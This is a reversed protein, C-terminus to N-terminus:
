HGLGLTGSFQKRERYILYQRSLCNLGNKFVLGEFRMKDFKSFNINGFKEPLEIVALQDSVRRLHPTLYYRIDDDLFLYINRSKLDDWSLEQDLNLLFHSVAHNVCDPACHQYETYRYVLKAPIEDKIGCVDIKCRHEQESLIKITFNCGPAVLYEMFNELPLTQIDLVRRLPMAKRVFIPNLKEKVNEIEVVIEDKDSINTDSVIRFNKFMLFDTPYICYNGIFEDEDIIYTTWKGTSEMFLGVDM